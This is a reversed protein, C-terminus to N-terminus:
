NYSKILYGCTTECQNNNEKKHSIVKFTISAGPYLLKEANKFKVSDFSPYMPVLLVAQNGPIFFYATATDISYKNSIVIEKQETFESVSIRQSKLAGFQINCSQEVIQSTLCSAAILPLLFIYISSKIVKM